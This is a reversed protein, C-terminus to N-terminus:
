GKSCRKVVCPWEGMILMCPLFNLQTGHKRVIRICLKSVYHFADDKENQNQTGPSKQCHASIFSARCSEHCRADAAHLDGVASNVRKQLTTWM